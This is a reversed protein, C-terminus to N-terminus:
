RTQRRLASQLGKWKVGPFKKGEKNQPVVNYGKGLWELAADLNTNRENTELERDDAGGFLHGLEISSCHDDTEIRTNM